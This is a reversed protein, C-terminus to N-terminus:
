KKEAKSLRRKGGEEQGAGSQKQDAASKSVLNMAQQDLYHILPAPGSRVDLSHM